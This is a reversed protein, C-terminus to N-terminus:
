KLTRIAPAGALTAYFRFSQGATCSTPPNLLTFGSGTGLSVTLTPIANDCLLTITEGDLPSIPLKVTYSTATGNLILKNAWNPWTATGGTSIVTEQWAQDNAAMFLQAHSDCNIVGSGYGNCANAGANQPYIPSTISYVSHAAEPSYDRIVPFTGGFSGGSVPGAYNWGQSPFGGPTIAGIQVNSGNNPNSQYVVSEQTVLVNLNQIQITAGAGEIRIANSGAILAGAVGAGGHWLNGIRIVPSVTTSDIWVSYKSGDCNLTSFDIATAAGPNVGTWQTTRICSHSGFSFIRDAQFGDQRSFWFLDLNAFQYGLVNDDASWLPFLHVGSAHSVDLSYTNYFLWQFLQGGINTLSVRATNNLAAVGKTVGGFGIDSIDVKGPVGDLYWVAQYSTPVWGVGPTPQQQLVAFNKFYSGMPPGGNLYFMARTSAAPTMVLYSGKFSLNCHQGSALASETWGEGKLFVPQYTTVQNNLLFHGNPVTIERGIQLAATFAATDDTVCDGKAGWQRVNPKIADFDAVWCGTVSTPQVQAGNDGGSTACNTGIWDYVAAGGDGATAFGLRSVRVGSAGTTAKLVTNNAVQVTTLVPVGSTFGTVFKGAQTTLSLLPNAGAIAANLDEAYLCDGNAWPYGGANTCAASAQHWPAAGFFALCLPLTLAASRISKEM